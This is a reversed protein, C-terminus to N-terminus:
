KASCAQASVAALTEKASGLDEVLGACAKAGAGWGVVRGGRSQFAAILTRVEPKVKNAYFKANGDPIVLMDVHDLMGVLIEDSAMPFLDVGEMRDLALMTKAVDKGAVANSYWGVAYSGVTRKREPFTVDRGLVYRFAGRVLERTCPFNEPHVTFAFVRGKGYTGGVMAGRGWMEPKAGPKGFDEEYTGWIEFNADAIANTSPELM